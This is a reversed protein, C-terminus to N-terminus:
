DAQPPKISDPPADIAADPKKKQEKTAKASRLADAADLEDQQRRIDDAIKDFADLPDDAM